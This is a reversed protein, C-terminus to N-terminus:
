QRDNGEEGDPPTRYREIELLPINPMGRRLWTELPGAIRKKKKSRRFDLAGLFHFSFSYSFAWREAGEGTMGGRGRLRM